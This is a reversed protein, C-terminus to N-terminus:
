FPRFHDTFITKRNYREFSTVYLKPINISKLNHNLSATLDVGANLVSLKVEPNKTECTAKCKSDYRAREPCNTKIHISTKRMNQVKNSNEVM